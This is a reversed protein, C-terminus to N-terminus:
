YYNNDNLCSAHLSKTKGWTDDNFCLFFYVPRKLCNYFHFTNFSILNKELSVQELLNQEFINRTFRRLIFYIITVCM